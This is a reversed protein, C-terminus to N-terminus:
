KIIKNHKIENKDHIAHIVSKNNDNKQQKYCKKLKLNSM